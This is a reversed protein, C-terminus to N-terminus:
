SEDRPDDDSHSVMQGSSSGSAEGFIVEGGTLDNSADLIEVQAKVDPDDGELIFNIDPGRGVILGDVGNNACGDFTADIFDLREQASLSTDFKARYYVRKFAM